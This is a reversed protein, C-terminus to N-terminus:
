NGSLLSQIKDLYNIWATRGTETLSVMSLPKRNEFRKDIQVYDADELKRLHTSLNGDTSGTKDRLVTFSASGASALYAMLGLRLKGHIVPDLEHLDFSPM